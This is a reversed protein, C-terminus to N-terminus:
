VSCGIASGAPLARDPMGIGADVILDVWIARVVPGEPADRVDM